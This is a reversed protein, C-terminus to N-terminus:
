LWNRRNSKADAKPGISRHWVLWWVLSGHLCVLLVRWSRWWTNHGPLPAERRIPVRWGNCKWDDWNCFSSWLIVCFLWRLCQISRDWKELFLQVIHFQPLFQIGLKWNRCIEFRFINVVSACGRGNSPCQGTQWHIDIPQQELNLEAKGRRWLIISATNVPVVYLHHRNVISTLSDFSLSKPYM